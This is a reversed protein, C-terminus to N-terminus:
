ILFTLWGTEAAEKEKQKGSEALSVLQLQIWNNLQFVVVKGRDGLGGATPAKLKMIIPNNWQTSQSSRLANTCFVSHFLRYNKNSCKWLLCTTLRKIPRSVSSSKENEVMYLGCLTWEIEFGVNKVTDKWCDFYKSSNLIRSVARDESTHMKHM